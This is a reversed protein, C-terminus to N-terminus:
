RVKEIRSLELLHAKSIALYNAKSCIGLSREVILRLLLKVLANLYNMYRDRWYRKGRVVRGKSVSVSM